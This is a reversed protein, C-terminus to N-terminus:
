SCATCVRGSNHAYGAVCICRGSVLEENAQCFSCASGDATPKSGSPCIVCAGSVKALGALCTCAQNRENYVENSGCKKVCIGYENTFFGVSCECRNNGKNYVSNIPCTVCYENSIFYNQPCAQCVNNFLGFGPNCVCSKRTM